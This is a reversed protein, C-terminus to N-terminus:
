TSPKISTTKWSPGKYIFTFLPGSDGSPNWYTGVTTLNRVVGSIVGEGILYIARLTDQLDLVKM